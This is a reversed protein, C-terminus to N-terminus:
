WDIGVNGFLVCLGASAQIIQRGYEECDKLFTQQEWTDGLLYGPNAMEPFIILQAQQTRGEEIMTLMTKCNIDPRGPIIEMQALAIRLM